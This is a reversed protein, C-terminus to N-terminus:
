REWDSFFQRAQYKREGGIDNWIIEVNVSVIKDEPFLIDSATFYSPTEVKIFYKFTESDFAPNILGNYAVLYKSISLEMDGKTYGLSTKSQGTGAVFCDNTSYAENNDFCRVSFMNPPVPNPKVFYMQGNAKKEQITEFIYEAINEAELYAQDASSVKSSASALALAGSVIIVIITSAAVSEVLGFSKIKKIRM